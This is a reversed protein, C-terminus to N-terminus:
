LPAPAACEILIQRRLMKGPFSQHPPQYKMAERLSESRMEDEIFSMARRAIQETAAKAKIWTSIEIFQDRYQIKQIQLHSARIRGVIERSTFVHKKVDRKRLLSTLGLVFRKAEHSPSITEVVLVRGAPKLLNPLIELHGVVDTILHLLNKLLIFDFDHVEVAGFDLWDEQFASANNLGSCKARSRAVMEPSKDVGVWGIDTRKSALYRLAIGTGCGLDLGRKCDATVSNKILQLLQPDHYWAFNDMFSCLRDYEDVVTGANVAYIENKQRSAM